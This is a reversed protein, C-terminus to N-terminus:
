AARARLSSIENVQPGGRLGHPTGRRPTSSAMVTISSGPRIRLHVRVEFELPEGSTLRREFTIPIAGFAADM